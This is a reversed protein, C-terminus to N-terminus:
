KKLFKQTATENIKVFYFGTNLSKINLNYRNVNSINNISIVKEGLINFIEIKNINVKSSTINLKDNAPNPYISTINIENETTALPSNSDRVIFLGNDRDAIMINGSEFFPYVNWAGDFNVGNNAPYSDFFAIENMNNNETDSIDIVRIGAAYNAIYLKNGKVYNNHDIAGTVGFYEMQLVPNDLDTLDFVINRTNAVLGFYEDLEDGCYLYTQNEDLWIQHTYGDLSGSYTAESITSPNSKDTVDVIVISSENAGIYIEKGVHETDPGNYIVVQADHSYGEDSYGGEDIPNLPDQINVFHPGGSYTNTGVGYAYGTDENIVINHAKGFGDFHADETFTVPPNTVNRLKTLDFIQIGHNFEESVIFAYNNYVKIDRWTSPSGNADLKGLYIPNIPDSIDIFAANHTNGYIAYEKGTDPDTWGWSDNGRSAGFTSLPLHSLLDLQNCPYPGAFGDVCPTQSFAIMSISLLTILTFKKM